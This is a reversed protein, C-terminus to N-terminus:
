KGGLGAEAMRCISATRLCCESKQRLDQGSRLAGSGGERQRVGGGRPHAIPVQLRMHAAQKGTVTLSGSDTRCSTRGRGVDWGDVLGSSVQLGLGERLGSAEMRTQTVLPGQQVLTVAGSQGSQEWGGGAWVVFRLLDSWKECSHHSNSNLNM